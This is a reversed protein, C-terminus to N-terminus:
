AEVINGNEIIMAVWYGLKTWNERNEWPATTINEGNSYIAVPFYNSNEKATEIVENVEVENEVNALYREKM